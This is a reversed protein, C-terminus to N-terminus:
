ILAIKHLDFSSFNFQKLSHPFIRQQLSPILYHESPFSLFTPKSFSSDSFSLNFRYYFYKYSYARKKISCTYFSVFAKESTTIKKIINLKIPSFFSFLLFLLFLSLTLYYELVIIYYCSLFFFFFSTVSIILYVHFIFAILKRSWIIM